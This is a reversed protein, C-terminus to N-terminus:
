NKRYRRGPFFRPVSKCYGEYEPYKGCGAMLVAAFM